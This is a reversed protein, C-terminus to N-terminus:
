KVYAISDNEKIFPIFKNKNKTWKHLKESELNISDITKQDLDYQIYNNNKLVRYSIVKINGDRMNNYINVEEILKIFAQKDSNANLVEKNNEITPPTKFPYKLLYQIESEYKDKCSIFFSFLVILFILKKM